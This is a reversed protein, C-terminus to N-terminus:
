VEQAPLRYRPLGGPGCAATGVGSCALDLVVHVRGDPRLLHDHDTAALHETSWPRVTLGM